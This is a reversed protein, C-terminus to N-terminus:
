FVSRYLCGGGRFKSKGAENGVVGWTALNLGNETESVESQPNGGGLLGNGWGLRWPSVGLNMVLVSPLWLIVM